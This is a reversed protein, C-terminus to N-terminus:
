PAPSAPRVVDISEAVAEGGQRIVTITAFDGPQLQTISMPSEVYGGPWAPAAAPREASSREVLDVTTDPTVVIARNVLSTGPGRWPGMEQLTLADRGPDIATVTGSHTETEAALAPGAILILLTALAFLSLKSTM